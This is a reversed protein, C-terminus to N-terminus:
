IPPYLVFMFKPSDTIATSKVVMTVVKVFIRSVGLGYIYIGM